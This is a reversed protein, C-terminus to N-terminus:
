AQNRSVLYMPFFFIWLVLCALFWLAPTAIKVTGIRLYVPSGARDSRAADLYVWLDTVVVLAIVLVPAFSVAM